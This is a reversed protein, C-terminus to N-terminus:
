STRNIRLHLVALCSLFVRVVDGRPPGLPQQPSFILTMASPIYAHSATLEVDRELKTKIIKSEPSGDTARNLLSPALSSKPAGNM